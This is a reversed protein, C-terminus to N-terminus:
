NSPSRTRRGADEVNSSAGSRLAREREYERAKEKLFVYCEHAEEAKSFGGVALRVQFSYGTDIVGKYGTVNERVSERADLERQGMKGNISAVERHYCGCSRSKGNVLNINLVERVTGCQCKCISRGTWTPKLVKQVTWRGYHKDLKM